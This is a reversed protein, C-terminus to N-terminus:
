RIEPEMGCQAIRRSLWNGRFYVILFVAAAIAWSIPYSLTLMKLTHWRRVVTMLWVVRLLCVCTGTILTPGLSNGVGRMTGAFVEIPMFVVNFPMISLMIFSGVAIVEPDDTYIGLIQTRFTLLVAAVAGVLAVSM